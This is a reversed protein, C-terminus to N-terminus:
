YLLIEGDLPELTMRTIVAGDHRRARSELRLSDAILPAAGRLTVTHQGATLRATMLPLWGGQAKRQDAIATQRDVTYEARLSGGDGAPLGAYITYVDTAPVRVTWRFVGEGEALIRYGTGDYAVDDARTPWDGSVPGCGAASDDIEVVWRPTIDDRMRKMRRRLTVTRSTRGANFWVEGQEFTRSYVPEDVETVRLRTVLFAAQGPVHWQLAYDTHTDPTVTMRIPWWAGDSLKVDMRGRDFREWGGTETRLTVCVIEDPRRLMRCDAEIRYRRGPVFPLRGPDTSLACRWGGAPTRVEIGRTTPRWDPGTRWPSRRSGSRWECLVREPRDTHVRVPGTAQGLRVEYEPYWFRQHGYMTTGFDYAYYVDAMLATFFGIRMRRYDRAARDTEQLTPRKGVRWTQYGLPHGMFAFTVSPQRSGTRWRTLRDLAQEATMYGDAVGDLLTASEFLRGHIHPRHNEDADNALWLARPWRQHLRDFLRNQAAQWRTNLEAIPDPQGDLDADIDKGLWSIHGVVSDFMAGQLLGRDLLRGFTREVWDYLGDLCGPQLLNPTYIAGGWWTVPSGDARRLLWEDKLWPHWEKVREVNALPATGLVTIGPNISRATRIFPEYAEDPGGYIVLLDYRAWLRADATPGCGWLNAIRPYRVSLQKPANM